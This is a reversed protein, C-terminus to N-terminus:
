VDSIYKRMVLAIPMMPPSIESLARALGNTVGTMIHLQRSISM